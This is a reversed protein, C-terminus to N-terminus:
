AAAFQAGSADRSIPCDMVLASWRFTSGSIATLAPATSLRYLPSSVGANRSKHTRRCVNAYGGAALALNTLMQRTGSGMIEEM